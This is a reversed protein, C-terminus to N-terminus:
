TDETKLIQINDTLLYKIILEKYGLENMTVNSNEASM